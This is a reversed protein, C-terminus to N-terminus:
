FDAKIGATIWRGPLQVFGHEFYTKDFVNNVDVFFTIKGLQQSFRIDVLNVKPYALLPSATDWQYNGARNKHTYWIAVSANKIPQLFVGASFKHKLYNLTYFSQFGQENRDAKLFAYNFTIKKLLKVYDELLINQSVEIGLMNIDDINEMTPVALDPRKVKDIADTTKRYFVSVVSAYIRSHYKHGLEFSMAKEPKLNPDAKVTSTNLYLETFTPYRLSRNVSAYFTSNKSSFYSLDIGPYFALGFQSNYNVLTGASLSYKKWRKQHEGFFSLNDRIKSKNYFVNPYLEADVVQPDSLNDGLRNSLVKEQRYEAGFATQGLKNDLKFKWEADLVSTKHFNVSSFKRSGLYDDFDYLDHHTRQNVMLIGSLKRSFKHMWAVNVLRSDVEEYQKYFKPHYFNAAGFQNAMAGFNVDLSGNGYIRSLTASITQKKFATNSIYGDSDMHELSISATNQGFVLGTSLGANKSGCSGLGVNAALSNKNIKKTIINIVGSFASPGFVRSTGGQLIEIRDIMSFPVPINLSHHGTQPDNVKIGDVLILTQDYHGGRISIDAQVGFASRSRVDVNLAYQLVGELTKVPSAEIMKPDIVTINRGTNKIETNIINATVSLESLEFATSDQSFSFKLISFLVITLHFKM